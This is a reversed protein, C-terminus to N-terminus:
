TDPLPITKDQVPIPNAFTAILNVDPVIVPNVDGVVYEDVDNM